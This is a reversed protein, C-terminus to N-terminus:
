RAGGLHAPPARGRLVAELRELADLIRPGGRVVDDSWAPAIRDEAVAPVRAWRERLRQPMPQETTALIWAPRRALVLEEDFTGSADMGLDCAINNAGCTRLLDDLLSGPGLAYLPDWGGVLLVRPRGEPWTPDITALIGEYRARFAAARARPGDAAGPTEPELVAALIEMSRVLHPLSRSTELMLVNPVRRRIAALDRRHLRRDIVVLNPRALLFGEVDFPQVTVRRPDPADAPLDCWPSVAVLRGAAGLAAIMETIGPLASAIRQDAPARWADASPGFLHVRGGDRYRVVVGHADDGAAAELTAFDGGPAASPADLCIPELRGQLSELMAWIAIVFIVLVSAVAVLTTRGLRSM